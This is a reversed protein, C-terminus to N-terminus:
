GVELHEGRVCRVEPHVHDESVPGGHDVLSLQALDGPREASPEDHRIHGGVVTTRPVIGHLESGGVRTKEALGSRAYPLRPRREHAAFAHLSMRLLMLRPLIPRMAIVACTFASSALVCTVLAHQRFDSTDDISLNAPPSCMTLPRITTSASSSVPAAARRSRRSM